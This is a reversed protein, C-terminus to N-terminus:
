RTMPKAQAPLKEQVAPNDMIGIFLPTKRDMDMVMYLFPENFYVNVVDTPEAMSSEAEATLTAAAAETGAEDVIIKSQQLVLSISLGDGIGSFDASDGFAKDLGMRILDDNLKREFSIEFVPLKLNVPRDTRGEIMDNIVESTLKDYVTRIDYKAPIMVDAAAGEGAAAEPYPLMAPKIAVFAINTGSASRYPLIVGEAFDNAIYDCHEAYKNMMDTEVADTGDPMFSERATAQGDFPNLWDAKFYLTNILALATRDDFPNEPMGDILGETNASIWANVANMAEEGSLDARFAQADMLSRIEGLWEESVDFGEDIWASNGARLTMSEEDALYSNMMDDAFVTMDAGLVDAFQERTDGEAGMGAMALSLYASVPSLVPNTEDASLRFLDYGFDQLSQYDNISYDIAVGVATDAATTDTLETVGPMRSPNQVNQVNQVDQVNQADQTQRAGDAQTGDTQAAAPSTQKQERQAEDPAAEPAGGCANLMGIGLTILFVALLKKKM